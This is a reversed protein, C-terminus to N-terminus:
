SWPYQLSLPRRQSLQSWPLRLSSLRRQSLQNWLRLMRLRWIRLRLSKRHSM